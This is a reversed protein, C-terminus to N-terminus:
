LIEEKSKFYYYINGRPVDAEAVVDSFSTQSFGKRYFLQNAAQVIRQKTLDSKSPM